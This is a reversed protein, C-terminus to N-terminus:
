KKETKGSGTSQPTSFNKKIDIDLQEKAVDMMKELYDIKIQKRGVAGELEKIRAQLEKMKQTSSDKMEVIRFGKENFNSYKYIWNYINSNSVGHLKELQLVSWKGSEFDKVIEKRFEESYNRKKRINRLNAKM